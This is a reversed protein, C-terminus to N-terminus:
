PPSLGPFLMPLMEPSPCHHSQSCFTEQTTILVGASTGVTYTLSLVLMQVGLAGPPLHRLPHPCLCLFEWFGVTHQGTQGICYFLLLSVSDLGPYLHLSVGSM